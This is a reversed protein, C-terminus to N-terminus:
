RFKLNKGFSIREEDYASKRKNLEEVAQIVQKDLPKLKLAKTLAVVAENYDGLKMLAVGKAYLVKPQNDISGLNELCKVHYLTETFEEKKNSCVALNTHTRTVIDKRTNEEEENSTVAFNAAQLIRQYLKVAADVRRSSFSDSARLRVEELSQIIDSFKVGKEVELNDIIEQDGVEHLKVIKLDCLIDAKPLIQFYLIKCSKQSLVPHLTKCTSPM